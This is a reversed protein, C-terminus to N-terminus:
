EAAIGYLYRNGRLVITDGAIAPTANFVDDLENRALIEFDGSARFVVASGDRSVSYVRDKAAVLSAYINEYGEIRQQDYCAEGTSLEYCSLIGSFRQLFFIRGGALVPSPVYSLGRDIEWSVRESGTLDGRAGRYRIAM